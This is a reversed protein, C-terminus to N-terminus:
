QMTDDFGKVFLMQSVITGKIGTPQTLEDGDTYTGDILVDTPVVLYEDTIIDIVNDFGGVSVRGAVLKNVELNEGGVSLRNALFTSIARQTPIVSNSDSSFTPDTSFENVVTGSGGLRVGGLALESLGDLDFFQASITVIGTSQQVSFLEGARFNGDQDTSTYYIRGGNLEYVENEPIATFFNGGAYITPYNTETFNGTGIDLFDHGTIRCQSYRERLTAQTGHSLNYDVELSPSITFRVLRTGAGSGDDGLDTVTVGSFVKLDTEDDETFLDLVDTIRIQVGPGPLAGVGAITLINSDPIIDAYGDGTITIDSTSTRYGTGRNIFDPQALAGSGMRISIFADATANPDVITVAPASLVSYGSGPDWIKVSKFKGQLIEARLRAQKGTRTHEVAGTQSANALLVFKAVNDIVAYTVQSWIRSNNLNRQTWILGDETTACATTASGADTGIAFFVGDAYKITSYAFTAVALPATTGALWTVGDFSYATVGNTALLIFRNDGYVLSANTWTENPLKEDNRIWTAGGDVSTATSLDSGSVAVFKGKGHVINTWQSITSGDGGDDDPINVTTWTTGNSSVVVDSTDNAVIVYKGAGYAADKWGASIPLSRSTWNVGDLSYGYTDASNNIALFNGDGAILSQYNGVVPLSLETWDQGNDSHQVYEANTLAIFKGGVSTGTSTFTQISNTSDDTVSTVTIVVDNAPTAGGIRTGIIIIEDNVAYGVGGNAVAVTYVVGKRNINFTAAVAEDDFSDGSGAVLIIEFEENVTFGNGNGSINVEAISGGVATIATVDATVGSTKGRISFPVSLSASIVGSIQIAVNSVVSDLTVKTSLTDVWDIISSSSLNNFTQTTEGYELGVYARNAFLNYNALSGFGPHPVSVKAEIRYRTTLDLNTVLPTGPIVHDWGAVGDSERKVGVQKTVFNFTTVEGYQGVGTGDTILLRMGLIEDITQTTDNTSIKVTSTAGLTEQAAAQKTLYGAGGAAGSDDVGLTLRGEFIANNRFDTYEVSAFDGAGIITSTAETYNEGCNAYELLLIEDSTGGAFASTVLAENNRNMVTVNQPVETADSGDAISGYKGYSNNGNTARITGGDEAFYGVQCYYTFVSVLEARANNTVWVGVGDSLVQTFDNSVMSRLGGNHLAGDIKQGVCGTGTNTVNQIYPSRNKIWVREDAPGWGPDLSVLAGGTPRQYLEFVEPPNLTGALGRTTINRLGTTDRMLFLNDNQSGNTANVYRRAARLAGYNGTYLMDYKIAKLLSSVDDRIRTATFTKDPFTVRLYALLEQKIFEENLILNNIADTEANLGDSVNSGSATVPSGTDVLEFNVYQLFNDLTDAASAAATNSGIPFVTITATPVFTNATIQTATNGASNTILQGGLVNSMISELRTFYSELNVLDNQYDALPGAAVVVTSRLEDGNIACGAPVSIPGIEAFKGTTPRIMVPTGAVFNDEVWDAAYRITKFPREFTGRDPDDIGNTSVYVTEIDEEIDRWYVDLETTVSLVQESKGIALRTNDITSGDFITSGGDDVERSQGFTLLDGKTTLGASQSTGILLDWFEYSNGNDGPFNIISADHETNCTYASGKFYIVDGLSYTTAQTWAGKFGKGPIYLEWTNNDLYDLSSGDQDDGGIDRVAKYLNGGRLVLDGTNYSGTSSWSGLFKTTSALVIWDLSGVESDIYPKSNFNNLTAYYVTGGHRVIDGETYYTSSSWVGDYQSGPFELVFKDSDLNTANSTHTETCRFVAAGYKVLDNKRYETAPAWVSKYEIGDVFVIWNDISEDLTTASIHPIACKYAIGNYKVIDGPGYATATAWNAEFSDHEAFVTWYNAEAIESMPNHSVTCTWLNGGYLVVDGINYDINITYSGIFTKGATMLVWRPQPQPPNSGALVATLDTRFASSATHTVVCVYSRGNLRIVDDRKYSTGTVWDGKWKYKFRELKFEAM